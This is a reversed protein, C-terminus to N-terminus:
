EKVMRRFEALSEEWTKRNLMIWTTALSMAEKATKGTIVPTELSVWEADALSEVGEPYKGAASRLWAERAETGGGLPLFGATALTQAGEQSVLFQLLEWAAEQHASATPIGFTESRVPAVPKAGPLVPYPAIGAPFGYQELVDLRVLGLGARGEKFDLGFTVVSGETPPPPQLMSHDLNLMGNFYQLYGSAAEVQTRNLHQTAQQYWMLGLSEVHLNDLGPLRNSGTGQTLRAATQRFQDWTWTDKPIAVGAASVRDKNYALVSPSVAYPMVFVHNGQQWDNMFTAFPKMDVRSRQILPMLDVLLGQEVAGSTIGVGALDVEGKKLMQNLSNEASDWSTPDNPDAPRPIPVKEVRYQPFKNQFAAIVADLGTSEIPTGWLAAKITVPGAESQPQEPVSQRKVVPKSCASILTAAIILLINLRAFRQM